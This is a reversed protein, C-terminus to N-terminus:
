MKSYNKDSEFKVSSCSQHKAKKTNIHILKIRLIPLKVDTYIGLLWIKRGCFDKAMNACEPLILYIYVNSLNVYVWVTCIHIIFFVNCCYNYLYPHKTVKLLLVKVFKPLCDYRINKFPWHWSIKKGNTAWFIQGPGSIFIRFCNQSSERKRSSIQM